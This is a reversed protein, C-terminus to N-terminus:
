NSGRWSSPMLFATQTAWGSGVGGGDVGSTSGGEMGSTGGGKAGSTGGGEVGSTGGGEIAEVRWVQIEERWYTWM